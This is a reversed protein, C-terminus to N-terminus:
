HSKLVKIDFVIITVPAELPIPAAMAFSAAPFPILRNNFARESSASLAIAPVRPPSAVRKAMTAPSILSSFTQSRTTPVATSCKLPISTTTLLAPTSSGIPGRSATAPPSHTLFRRTLTIPGTSSEWRAIGKKDSRLPQIMLIELPAATLAMRPHDAYQVELAANFWKVRISAASYGCIVDTATDGPMVAVSM